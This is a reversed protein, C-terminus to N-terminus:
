SCRTGRPRDRPAADTRSEGAEARPGEQRPATAAPLAVRGSGRAHPADRSRSTPPRCDLGGRCGDGRRVPPGGPPCPPGGPAAPRAGCAGRLAWAPARAGPGCARGPGGPRVAAGPGTTGHRCPPCRSCPVALAPRRPAEAGRRRVGRSSSRERTAPRPERARVGRARGGAFARGRAGVRPAPPPPHHRLPPARRRPHPARVPATRARGPPARATGRSSTVQAGQTAPEASGRQACRRPTPSACRRLLSDRPLGQSAQLRRPRARPGRRM